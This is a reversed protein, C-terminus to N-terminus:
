VHRQAAGAIHADYVGRWFLAERDDGLDGLVAFPQYANNGSGGSYWLAGKSESGPRELTFTPLAQWANEGRRSSEELEIELRSEPYSDAPGARADGPM